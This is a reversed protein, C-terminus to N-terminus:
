RGWLNGGGSWRVKVKQVFLQTRPIRQVDTWVTPLTDKSMWNIFRIFTRKVFSSLLRCTIYLLFLNFHSKLFLTWSKLFIYWVTVNQTIHLSDPYPWKTGIAASDLNADIIHNYSSSCSWMRVLNIHTDNICVSSKHM